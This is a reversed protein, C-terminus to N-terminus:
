KIQLDQSTLEMSYLTKLPHTMSVFNYYYEIM